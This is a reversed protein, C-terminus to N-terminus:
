AAAFGTHPRMEPPKYALVIRDKPVGAEVLRDALGDPTGDHQIWVKGNRIDIHIAPGHVRYLGSWGNHILEYHDNAEDFVLETDVEGVSIPDRAYESILSKIIERYRDLEEM